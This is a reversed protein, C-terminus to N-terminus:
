GEPLVFTEGVERLAIRDAQEGAAAVLRQLPEDPPEYSLIFTRHHIPVVFAANMEDAMRWTQEPSAHSHIMLVTAHGLWSITLRDARWEAPRPRHRVESVAYRQERRRQHVLWTIWGQLPYLGILVVVLGILFWTGM